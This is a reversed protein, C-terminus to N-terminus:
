GPLLLLLLLFLPLQQLKNNIFFGKGGRLLAMCLLLLAAPGRGARLAQPASSSSIELSTPGVPAAELRAARFRDSFQQSCMRELSDEM